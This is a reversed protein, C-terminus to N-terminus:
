SAMENQIEGNDESLGPWVDGEDLYNVDDIYGKPSKFLKLFEKQRKIKDTLQGTNSLTHIAVRAYGCSLISGILKRPHMKQYSYYFYQIM